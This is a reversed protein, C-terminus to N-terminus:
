ISPKQRSRGRPSCLHPQQCQSSALVAWSLGVHPPASAEWGCGAGGRWGSSHTANCSLRGGWTFKGLNCGWSVDQSCDRLSGSGASGRWAAGPFRGVQVRLCSVQKNDLVTQEVSIYSSDNKGQPSRESGCGPKGEERGRGAKGGRM